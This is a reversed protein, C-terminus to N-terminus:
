MSTSRAARHLGRVIGARGQLSHGLLIDAGDQPLQGKRDAIKQGSLLLAGMGSCFVFRARVSAAASSHFTSGEPRVTSTRGM